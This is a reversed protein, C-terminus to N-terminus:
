QAVGYGYTGVFVCGYSEVNASVIKTLKVETQIHKKYNNHVGYFYWKFLACYLTM